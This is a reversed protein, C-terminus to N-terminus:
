SYGTPLPNGWMQRWEELRVIYALTNRCPGNNLAVRSKKIDPYISAVLDHAKILQNSVPTKKCRDFSHSFQCPVSAHRHSPWSRCKDKITIDISQRLLQPSHGSDLRKYQRSTGSSSIKQPILKNDLTFAIAGPPLLSVVGQIPVLSSTESALYHNLTSSQIEHFGTKLGMPSYQGIWGIGFKRYCDCFTNFSCPLCRAKGM